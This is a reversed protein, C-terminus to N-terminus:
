ILLLKINISLLKCKLWLITVKDVCLLQTKNKLSDISKFLDTWDTWEIVWKCISEKTQKM